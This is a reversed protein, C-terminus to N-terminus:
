GGVKRRKSTKASPRKAPGAWRMARKRSSGPSPEWGRARLWQAFDRARAVLYELGELEELLKWPLGGREGCRLGGPAAAATVALTLAAVSDVDGGLHVSALLADRCGRAFRLLYLVAGATRMADSGVGHVPDLGQAGGRCHALQPNPQPGCLVEHVKGPMKRLHLGFEHFDPLRKVAELYEETAEHSLSSGRLRELCWDFIEDRAGKEVILYRAALAILYSAARAKPHPHTADANLSCLRECEELPLFALPLARMPPANGPDERMAQGKKQEELSTEGRFFAKISGHGAREGDSPKPRQLALLWEERWAELLDNESLDQLDKAKMLAKMLGVTMECDDSYMGRINNVKHEEKMAPNEPWATCKTVHERIWHADQMEIGFGFADGIADGLLLQVLVNSQEGEVLRRRATQTATTPAFQPVDELAM